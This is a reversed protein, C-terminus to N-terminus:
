HILRCFLDNDDIDVSGLDLSYSLLCVKPSSYSVCEPTSIPILQRLEDWRAQSALDCMLSRMRQNTISRM